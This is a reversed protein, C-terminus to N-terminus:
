HVVVVKLEERDLKEIMKLIAFDASGSASKAFEIWGLCMVWRGVRGCVWGNNWRGGGVWM